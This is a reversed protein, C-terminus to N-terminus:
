GGVNPWVDNYPDVIHNQLWSNPAYEIKWAQYAPSDFDFEPPPGPDIAGAFRPDYPSVYPGGTMDQAAAYVEPELYGAQLFQNLTGDLLAAHSSEDLEGYVEAADMNPAKKIADLAQGKLQDIGWKLWEDEIKPVFPAVSAISLVRAFAEARKKALEEDARDGQYAEHIIWSMGKAGFIGANDLFDPSQGTIFLAAAQPNEALTDQLRHTLSLQQTVFAGALLIDVHDQNTGLTGVIKAMLEEDMVAGYPMGDPFGPAATTYWDGGLNDGRDENAIRFLDPMYEAIINAVGPRMGDWMQWGDNAGLGLFGGSAGEGTQAGILAFTQSAIQASIRGTEGRNRFRTTAAELAAAFDAGNSPDSTEAWTREQIFYQLRANVQYKDDGITIEESGGAQFFHQAALPNHSLALMLSPMVDIVLDGDTDRLPNLHNHKPSWVPDPGNAVEYDYLGTGVHDLFSTSYVGQQLLLALAQAQNTPADGGEMWSSATMAEVWQQAYGDPLALDGTGHSATGMTTGVGIVLQNYVERFSQADELSLSGAWNNTEIVAAALQDPGAASAFGAAFYPDNMNATIEAALEPSIDGTAALLARAAEAGALRAAQPDLQSIDSVDDFRATGRPWDPSSNELNIALALRRRVGPLEQEAWNIAPEIGSAAGSDLEYESLWGSLDAEAERLWEIGRELGAVLGAMESITIQAVAV